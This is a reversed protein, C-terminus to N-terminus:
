PPGLAATRSRITDPLDSFGAISSHPVIPYARRPGGGSQEEDAPVPPMRCG